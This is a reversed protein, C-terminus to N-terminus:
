FFTDRKDARGIYSITGDENWCGIDGTKFM